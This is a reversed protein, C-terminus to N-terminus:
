KGPVVDRSCLRKILSCSPRALTRPQEQSGIDVCTGACQEGDTGCGISSSLQLPSPHQCVMNAQLTTRQVFEQSQEAGAKSVLLAGAASSGAMVMQGKRLLLVLCCRGWSWCLLLLGGLQWCVATCLQPWSQARQGQGLRGREDELSLVAALLGLLAADLAVMLHEVELHVGPRDRGLVHTGGQERGVHHGSREGM